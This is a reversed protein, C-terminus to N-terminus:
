ITVHFPRRRLNSLSKAIDCILQDVPLGGLVTVSTVFVAESRRVFSLEQEERRSLITIHAYELHKTIQSRLELAWFASYISAESHVLLLDIDRAHSPAHLYSGFLYFNIVESGVM